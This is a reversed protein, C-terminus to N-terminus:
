KKPYKETWKRVLKQAKAIQASTMKQKGIKEKYMRGNGTKGSISFWKYAEVFDKSVGKGKAYMAGLINQAIRDEKEAAKKYWKAAEAYDQTVGLGLYYSAGLFRQAYSDGEEAIQKHLQHYNARILRQAKMSAVVKNQEAVKLLWKISEKHSQPTGKGTSYMLGLNYQANVGGQEAGLRYWKVAEKYDQQVGQGNEYMLGLNYQANIDGQEAGLRYWKVAEEYDQQVEQGLKYIMGIKFHSKADGQEALSTVLKHVRRQEIKDKELYTNLRQQSGDAFVVSFGSFFGLLTLAFSFILPQTKM